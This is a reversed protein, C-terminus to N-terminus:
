TPAEQVPFTSTQRLAEGAAMAVATALNMSRLGAAIPVRLRMDAAEHVHDPVGASERGFLLVDDRAFRYETYIASAKTTLLVLKGAADAKWAMFAPWSAHRAIRAHDLYDLGARALARDSLEFGTPGIIHTVLGLCASLRLIAGTNQPIDPQFLAIAPM